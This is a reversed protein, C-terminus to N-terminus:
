PSTGARCCLPGGTAVEAEGRPVEWTPAMTLRWPRVPSFGAHLGPVSSVEQPVSALSAEPARSDCPKAASWSEVRESIIAPGVGAGAGRQGQEKPTSGARATHGLDGSPAQQMAEQSSQAMRM